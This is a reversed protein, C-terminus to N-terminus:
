TTQEPTYTSWDGSEIRKKGTPSFKYVYVWADITGNPGNVPRKEREFEIGEYDDLKKLIVTTVEYLDGMVSGKGDVFGPYDSLLILRGEATASGVYTGNMELFRAYATGVSRRSAQSQHTGKRLSGYVFIQEM